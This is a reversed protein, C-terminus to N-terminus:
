LSPTLGHPFHSLVGCGHISAAIHRTAGFHWWQSGSISRRHARGLHHFPEQMDFNWAPLTDQLVHHNSERQKDKFGQESHRNCLKKSGQVKAPRVRCYAANDPMPIMQSGQPKLKM